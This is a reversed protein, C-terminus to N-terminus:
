NTVVLRLGSKGGGYMRDADEPRLHLLSALEDLSYGLATRHHAVISQLRGAKEFGIDVPEVGKFVKNYQISLSKYQSPTILNLDSARRILAKISVKWYAKVRGLNSLKLGALYPKIEAAPMLFAAAFRHAESEMKEDEDPLSHMVMHGLEHALSFRFRDPPMESNMFFLPPLGEMRFSLGDLLNTGFRAIIVIGGAEEILAVLNAVPGRPLMWYARLREAIQEPTTGSEDLDIQPIPKEIPQEYSRLLKSVHQRRINIIAGIRALPKAGLKARKRYHFHPFGIARERQFFFSPPFGLTKSIAQVADEGPQAILGHELKSIFAQTIGSKAALDAQTVERADRALRLMDPNFEDAV